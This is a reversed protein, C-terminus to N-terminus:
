SSLDPKPSSSLESSLIETTMKLVALFPFAVTMIESFALVIQEETAGTKDDLIEDKSLDPAYAFLLDTLKEPCQVLASILGGKFVNVEANEVNLNFNGLIAGLEAVLLKRWERQKLTRLLEIKYDKTGLKVILPAMSLKDTESRM